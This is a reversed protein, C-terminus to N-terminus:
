LSFVFKNGRAAEAIQKSYRQESAEPSFIEEIFDSVNLGTEIVSDHKMELVRLWVCLAEIYSDYAYGKGQYVLSYHNFLQVILPYTLYDEMRANPNMGSDIAEQVERESPPVETITNSQLPVNPAMVGYREWDFRSGYRESLCHQFHEHLALQLIRSESGAPGKEPPKEPLDELIINAQAREAQFVVQDYHAGRNLKLLPHVAVGVSDTTRNKRIVTLAKAAQQVSASNSANTLVFLEREGPFISQEPYQVRIWDSPVRTDNATARKRFWKRLAISRELRQAAYRPHEDSHYPSPLADSDYLSPSWPIIRAWHFREAFAHFICTFTTLALANAGWRKRILSDAPHEGVHVKDLETALLESDQELGSCVRTLLHSSRHELLQVYNVLEQSYRLSNWRSMLWILHDVLSTASMESLPTSSTSGNSSGLLLEYEALVAPQKYSNYADVWQKPACTHCCQLIHAVVIHCFEIPRYFSGNINHEHSLHQKRIVMMTRLQDYRRMWTIPTHTAWPRCIRGKYDIFASREPHKRGAARDATELDKEKLYEELLLLANDLIIVFQEIEEAGRSVTAPGDESLLAAAADLEKILEEM